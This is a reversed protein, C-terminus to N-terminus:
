KTNLHFKQTLKLNFNVLILKKIIKLKFVLFQEFKVNRKQMFDAIIM